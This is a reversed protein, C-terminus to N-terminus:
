NMLAGHGGQASNRGGPAKPHVMKFTSGTQSAPQANQQCELLAAGSLNSCTASAQPSTDSSGACGALAAIAVPLILFKMMRM